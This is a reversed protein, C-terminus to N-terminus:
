VLASTPTKPVADFRFQAVAKDHAQILRIGKASLPNESASKTQEFAM